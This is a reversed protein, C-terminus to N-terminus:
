YWGKVKEAKKNDRVVKLAKLIKRADEKGLCFMVNYEIDWWAINMDWSDLDRDGFKKGEIRDKIKSWEKLRYEDKLLGPIFEMYKEHQEKTCILCLMKSDFSKINKIGFVEFSDVNSTMQKLSKPLSGFEYEASGMYDMGMLQDISPNTPPEKKFNMRQILWPTERM